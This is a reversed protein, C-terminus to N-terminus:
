TTYNQLNFPCESIVPHCTGGILDSIKAHKENTKYTNVSIQFSNQIKEVVIRSYVVYPLNEKM